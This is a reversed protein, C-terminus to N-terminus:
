YVLSIDWKLINTNTNNSLFLLWGVSVPAENEINAECLSDGQIMGWTEKM